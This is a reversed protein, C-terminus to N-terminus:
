FDLTPARACWGPAPGGIVARVTQTNAAPAGAAVTAFGRPTCMAVHPVMTRRIRQEMAHVHRCTHCPVMRRMYMHCPRESATSYCQSSGHHSIAEDCFQCTMTNHSLHHSVTKQTTSCHGQCICDCASCDRELLVGM